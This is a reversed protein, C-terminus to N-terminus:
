FETYESNRNDYKTTEKQGKQSRLPGLCIDQVATSYNDHTTRTSFFEM